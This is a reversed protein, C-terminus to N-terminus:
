KSFQVRIKELDLESVTILPNWRTSLAKLSFATCVVSLGKQLPLFRLGNMEMKRSLAPNNVAMGVDGWPGWQMSLAMHGAPPHCVAIKDIFGNAAAYNAQGVSGLSSSVSSFNMLMAPASHSDVLSLINKLGQVKPAAVTRVSKLDQKALILDKLAGGLHMLVTRESQRLIGSSSAMSETVSIDARIAHVLTWSQIHYKKM